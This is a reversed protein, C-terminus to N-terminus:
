KKREKQLYSLISELEEITANYKIRNIRGDVWAVNGEVYGALPDLRDLHAHGVGDSGRGKKGYYIVKGTIACTGTWIDELYEPTINFPIRKRKCEGRKSRCYELFYNEERAKAAKEKKCLKCRNDRGDSRRTDKHYSTLPQVRKCISCIKTNIVSM